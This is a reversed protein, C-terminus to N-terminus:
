QNYLETVRAKFSKNLCVDSVQIYKTCGGSVIVSDVNMDEFRKERYWDYPM